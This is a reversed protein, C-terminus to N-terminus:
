VVSKRDLLVLATGGLILAKFVLAFDDVRYTNGLIEYPQGGFGKVVFVGAALVAALGFAGVWRRRFWTIM